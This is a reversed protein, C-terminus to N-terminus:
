HGGARILPEIALFTNFLKSDKFFEEVAKKSYRYCVKM